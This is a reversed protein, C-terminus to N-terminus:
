MRTVRVVRWLATVDDNYCNSSKSAVVRWLATVDDNYCNSSKSAVIVDRFWLKLNKETAWHKM